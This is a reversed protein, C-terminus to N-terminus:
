VNFVIWELLDQLDLNKNTKFERLLSDFGVKDLIEPVNNDINFKWLLKNSNHKLFYAIPTM